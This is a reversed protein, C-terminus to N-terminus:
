RATKGLLAGVWALSDKPQSDEAGLLLPEFFPQQFSHPLSHTVLQRSPRKGQSEWAGPWHTSACGLEERLQGLHVWPSSTKHRERKKGLDKALAGLAEGM